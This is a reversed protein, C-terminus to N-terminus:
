NEELVDIRSIDEIEYRKGILTLEMITKEIVELRTEAVCPLSIIGDPLYLYITYNNKM